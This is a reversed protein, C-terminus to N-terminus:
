RVFTGRPINQMERNDMDIYGCNLRDFNDKVKFLVSDPEPGESFVSDLSGVLEFLHNDGTSKKKVEAFLFNEYFPISRTTGSLIKTVKQERKPDVVAAIKTRNSQKSASSVGSRKLIGKVPM